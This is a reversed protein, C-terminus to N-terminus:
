TLFQSQNISVSLRCVGDQQPEVSQVVGHIAVLAKHLQAVVFMRSGKALPECFRLHFDAASLDDLETETVFQEGRANTGRLLAPFPGYIRPAGDDANEAVARLSFISEFQEPM